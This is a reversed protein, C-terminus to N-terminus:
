GGGCGGASWCRGGEWDLAVDPAEVVVVLVLENLPVLTWWPGSSWTCGGSGNYVPLFRTLRPRPGVGM